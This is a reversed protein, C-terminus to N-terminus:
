LILRDTRHKRDANRFFSSKWIHTNYPRGCLSYTMNRFDSNSLRDTVSVPPFVRVRLEHPWYQKFEAKSAALVDEHSDQCLNRHRIRPVKKERLGLMCRDHPPTTGSPMLRSTLQLSQSHKRSAKPRHERCTESYCMCLLLHRLLPTMLQTIGPNILAMRPQPLCPVFRLQLQDFYVMLPLNLNLNCGLNKKSYTKSSGNKPNVLYTYSAISVSRGGGSPEIAQFRQQRETFAPAQKIGALSYFM